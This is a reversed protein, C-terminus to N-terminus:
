MEDDNGIAIRAAAEERRVGIPPRGMPATGPMTMSATTRRSRAATAVWKTRDTRVSVGPGGHPSRQEQAQTTQHQGSEEGQLGLLPRNRISNPSQPPVTRRLPNWQVSEKRPLDRIEMRDRFGFRLFNFAVSRRPSGMSIAARM